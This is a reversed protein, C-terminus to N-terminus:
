PRFKKIISNLGSIANNLDQLVRKGEKTEEDAICGELTNTVYDVAAHLANIEKKTLSKKIRVKKDM